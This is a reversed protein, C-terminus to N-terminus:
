DKKFTTSYLNDQISDNKSLGLMKKLYYTKKKPGTIEQFEETHKVEFYIDELAKPLLKYTYCELPVSRMIRSLEMAGEWKSVYLYSFVRGDKKTETLIKAFVDFEKLKEILMNQHEDSLAHTNINYFNHKKHRSGDDYMLLALGFTNLNKISEEIPDKSLLSKTFDCVITAFSFIESGKKFGLNSREKVGSKCYSDLIGNKFEMYERYHCNYSISGSKHLCGDGLIGSYIVQKEQEKM